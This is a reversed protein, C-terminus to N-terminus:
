DMGKTSVKRYLQMGGWGYIFYTIGYVMAGLATGVSGPFYMSVLSGLTLALGLTKWIVKAFFILGGGIDAVQDIITPATEVTGGSSDIEMIENVDSQNVAAGTHLVDVPFLGVENFLTAVASFILLFLAYQYVKM